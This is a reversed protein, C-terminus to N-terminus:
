NLEAVKVDAEIAAVLANAIAFDMEEIAAGVADICALAYEEAHKARKIARKASREAKFAEISNNVEERKANVKAQFQAWSAKTEEVQADVKAQAAETSEATSAKAQEVKQKANELSEQFKAKLNDLQVSM